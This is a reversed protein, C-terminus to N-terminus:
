ETEHSCPSAIATTLAVGHEDFNSDKCNMGDSPHCGLAGAFVRLLHDAGCDSDVCTHPPAQVNAAYCMTQTTLAHSFRILLGLINLASVWWEFELAHKVLVAASFFCSGFSYTAAAFSGLLPQDLASRAKSLCSHWDFTHVLIAFHVRAGSRRGRSPWPQTQNSGHDGPSKSLVALPDNHHAEGVAAYNRLM